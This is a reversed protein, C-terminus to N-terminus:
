IEIIRNVKPSCLWKDVSVKFLKRRFWGSIYGALYSVILSFIIHPIMWVTGAVLEIGLLQFFSKGHIFFVDFANEALRNIWNIHKEKMKAVATFLFVAALNCSIFAYGFPNIFFSIAATFGACMFYGALCNWSTCKQLFECDEGFRRIYGGMIYLTIFNLIGYGDDAIPAGHGFSYWVSFLMLQIFMLLRYSNKNLNLLTKNLFPALLFLILYTKIFWHTGYFYPFFSKILDVLSFAEGQMLGVVRWFLGYYAIIILLEIPRKLALKTQSVMFYGTIVVFVSVLPVALGQVVAVFFWAFNPYQAYNQIGGIGANTYHCAVVGMMAIIRLVEINSNRQKKM